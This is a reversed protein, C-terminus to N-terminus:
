VGIIARFMKDYVEEHTLTPYKDVVIQVLLKINTDQNTPNKGVSRIFDLQEQNM